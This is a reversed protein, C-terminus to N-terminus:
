STMIMMILTIDWLPKRQDSMQIRLELIFLPPSFYSVGNMVIYDQIEDDTM